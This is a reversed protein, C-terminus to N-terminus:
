KNPSETHYVRRIIKRTLTCMEPTVGPPLKEASFGPAEPNPFLSVTDSNAITSDMLLLAVVTRPYADAYLRAIACGMSSAVFIIHLDNVNAPPIGFRTTAINVVLERIGHAADLCDGGYGQPRGPVDANRGITTGQGVRDYTLIPPLNKAYGSSTSRDHSVM